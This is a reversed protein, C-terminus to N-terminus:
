NDNVLLTEGDLGNIHARGGGTFVIRRGGTRFDWTSPRFSTIYRPFQTIAYNTKAIM